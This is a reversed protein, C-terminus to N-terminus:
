LNENENLISADGFKNLRGKLEGHAKEIQGDFIKADDLFILLDKVGRYSYIRSKNYNWIRVLGIQRVADFELKLEIEKRDFKCKWIHDEDRTRYNQDILKEPLTELNNLFKIQLTKLVFFPSFLLAKSRFTM